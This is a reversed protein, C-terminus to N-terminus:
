DSNLVPVTVGGYPIVYIGSEPRMIEVATDIANQLCSFPKFFMKKVDEPNMDSVLFVEAKEVAKAIYTSKHAGLVYNNRSKEMLEQPSVAEKIWQEFVPDGFGENCKAVVIIMGGEAVAKLANQITKQTQYVTADRPYGGASVIVIDAKNQMEVSYVQKAIRACERHAKVPDGAAVFIIRGRENLVVNVIFKLGAIRAFEEMDKRVYNSEIAGSECNGIRNLSHNYEIARKSAAGVAVAKAGGSFGALQHMEVNGMGIVLDAQAVPTSVEVPTGRATVGLQSYGREKSHVCEVKGYLKGLLKQKEEEAPERHNGVGIIVTIRSSDIGNNVLENYVEPLIISSPFLRTQDSIVIVANESKKAMEALPEASIPNNLATKLEAKIDNIEPLFVPTIFGLLRGAPIEAEVLSEGYNLVIKKNMHLRIGM